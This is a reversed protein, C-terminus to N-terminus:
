WRASRGGDVTLVTGTVATPGDVLFWVAEAISEAGGERGHPTRALTRARAEAAEDDPFLAAGPAVGNVRIHPGWEAALGATLAQLGAKTASYAAAGGYPRLASVDLLNVIAGPRPGARLAPALRQCLRFPATLNLRLQAEFDELALAESPGRLFSAANNVLVALPAGDLLALTADALADAGGPAGLDATLADGDLAAALDAAADAHGRAHVIVRLGGAALRRAIAAGLRVAGGTVLATPRTV